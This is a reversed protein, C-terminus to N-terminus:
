TSARYVAEDPRLQVASVASRDGKVLAAVAAPAHYKQWVASAAAVNASSEILALGGKLWKIMCKLLQGETDIAVGLGTKKVYMSLSSYTPAYVIMPKANSIMEVTKTPFSTSVLIRNEPLFSYPLIMAAAKSVEEAIIDPNTGRVVRLLGKAQYIRLSEPIENLSVVVVVLKNQKVAASAEDAIRCFTLLADEYLRNISGLYVFTLEGTSTAGGGRPIPRQCIHPMWESRIGYKELLHDCYGDSVTFVRMAGELVKRELFRIYRSELCRGVAGNSAEFDDVVCIEYPLGSRRSLAQMLKLFRWDSGSFGFLRTVGASALNRAIGYASIGALFGDVYSRAFVSIRHLGLGESTRYPLRMQRFDLAVSDPYGRPLIIASTDESMAKLWAHTLISTGKGGALYPAADTVLAYNPKM